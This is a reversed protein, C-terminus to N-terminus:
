LRNRRIIVVDRDISIWQKFFSNQFYLSEDYYKFEGTDTFLRIQRDFKVIGKDNLENEAYSFLINSSENLHFVKPVKHIWAIGITQDTVDQIGYFSIFQYITRNINRVFISYM